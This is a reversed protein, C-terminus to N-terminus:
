ISGSLSGKYVAYWGSGSKRTSQLNLYGSCWTQYTDSFERYSIREPIDSFNSYWNEVTKVYSVVINPSNEGDAPRSINTDLPLDADSYLALWTGDAQREAARLPLVGASDDVSERIDAYQAFIVEVAKQTDASAASNDASSSFATLSLLLVVSLLCSVIKKMFLLKRESQM